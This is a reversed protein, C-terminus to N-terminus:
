FTIRLNIPVGPVQRYTFNREVSWVSENGSTNYATMVCYQPVGNPFAMTTYTSVNGPDAFLAHAGTATGCYIRAGALDTLPSGDTCAISVSTRRSTTTASFPLLEVERIGHTIM